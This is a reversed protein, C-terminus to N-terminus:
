YCIFLSIFCGFLLFFFFFRCFLVFFVWEERSANLTTHLRFKRAQSWKKVTASLDEHSSFFFNRELNELKSFVLGQAGNLSCCISM